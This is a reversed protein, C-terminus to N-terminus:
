RTARAGERLGVLQTQTRVILLPGAIAPTAMTVEGMPNTALLEYQRGAKVVYVEGDESALYVRGGAAVPSASFGGAAVRQQYVRAGTKVDYTSLIGNDGSVYLLGDYVLPTGTYPSGRDSRWALADSDRAVEGRRGARIAYIPRGGSPYGGTVIVLDGAAVPSPVKVQTAEDPMRWRERGTAPDYGRIYKPSNTILEPGAPGRMVLPTAWSPLEDRAVEWVKRGTDIDFAALASDKHRDNQVIVLNDHIVPSSAPGWQYTPDDVLGVDMVGLDANWRPRGEMDFCFLGESGLVAVIARGNTAPTASAHSAKVHRKVRPVRTLVERNWAIAGTATDIALLRWAHPVMDDAAGIGARRSDGTRVTPQGTAPVATTVFARTHWVIPSSHGLGPITVRWAVNRSGALDWTTPPTADRAVGGIGTGRFAPWEAAIGSAGVGVAVVAAVAFSCALRTNLRAELRSRRSDQAHVRVM